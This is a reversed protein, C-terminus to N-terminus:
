FLSYYEGKIHVSFALALNLSLGLLHKIIPFQFIKHVTFRIKTVRVPNHAYNLISPLKLPVYYIIYIYKICKFPTFVCIILFHKKIYM